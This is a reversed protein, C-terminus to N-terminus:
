TKYLEEEYETCTLHCSANFCTCKYCGLRKRQEYSLKIPKRNVMNDKGIIGVGHALIMKMLNIVVNVASMMNFNM